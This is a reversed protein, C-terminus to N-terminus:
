DRDEEAEDYYDLQDIPRVLSTLLNMVHATIRKLFRYYLARAVADSAPLPPRPGSDYPGVHADGIEPAQNGGPPSTETM